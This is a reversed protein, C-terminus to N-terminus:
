NATAVYPFTVADAREDADVNDTVLGPSVNNNNGLANGFIVALGLALLVLITISNLVELAMIVATDLSVAIARARRGEVVDAVFFTRVGLNGVDGVAGLWALDAAQGTGRLHALLM